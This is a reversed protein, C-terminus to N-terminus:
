QIPETVNDSKKSRRTLWAGYLYNAMFVALVLVVTLLVKASEEM